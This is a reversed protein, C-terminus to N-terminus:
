RAEVYSDLLPPVRLAVPVDEPGIMRDLEEHLRRIRREQYQLKLVELGGSAMSAQMGPIVALDENLVRSNFAVVQRILADHESGRPTAACYHVLYAFSDAARPIATIVFFMEGGGLVISTNPFIHFSYVGELPLGTPGVGKFRPLGIGDRMAAAMEPRFKILMRSHGNPLLWQGTRGTDLASDATESHLFPVHYTEINADGALKWNGAVIQFEEAAFHVDDSRDGIMEDIEDAIPGLFARLGPGENSFNVFVLAGFTECRISKLGLCSRDTNAPFNKAEPYGRLSGGTEYTWGHYPCVLLRASGAKELVLPSGRHQCSNYFCRIRGDQGRVLMLPEAFADLRIFDGPNPVQEVHGAYLWCRDFVRKKELDFFAEDTYRAAPVDIPDPFGPPFAAREGEMDPRSRLEDLDVTNM